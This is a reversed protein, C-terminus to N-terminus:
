AGGGHKRKLVDYFVKEEEQSLRSLSAGAEILITGRWGTTTKIRDAMMIAVETLSEVSVAPNTSPPKLILIDDKGLTMSKAYDAVKIALAQKLADRDRQVAELEDAVKEPAVTALRRMMGKTPGRREPMELRRVFVFRFKLVLSEPLVQM